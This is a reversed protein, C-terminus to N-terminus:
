LIDSLRKGNKKEKLPLPPQQIVGKLKDKIQHSMENGKRFFDIVKDCFEYDSKNQELEDPGIFSEWCFGVVGSDMAMADVCENFMNYMLDDEDWSWIVQMYDCPKAEGAEWPEECYDYINKKTEALVVISKLFPLAYEEFANNPIFDEVAKKFLKISSCGKLLKSYLSPVGKPGYYHFTNAIKLYDEEDEHEDKRELLYEYIQGPFKGTQCWDHFVPIHNVNQVLRLGYILMDHLRKHSRNIQSLFDVAIHISEEGEYQTLAKIKYKGKVSTISWREYDGIADFKKMMETIFEAPSSEMSVNEIGKADCIVPYLDEIMKIQVSEDKYMSEEGQLSAVTLYPLEKVIPKLAFANVPKISSADKGRHLKRYRTTSSGREIREIPHKGPKPSLRKAKTKKKIISKQM